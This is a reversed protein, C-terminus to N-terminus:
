NTCILLFYVPKILSPSVYQHSLNLPLSNIVIARAFIYKKRKEWRIAKLDAKPVKWSEGPAFFSGFDGCRTVFIQGWCYYLIVARWSRKTNGSLFRLVEAPIKKGLSHRAIQRNEKLQNIAQNHTTIIFIHHASSKTLGTPVHWMASM